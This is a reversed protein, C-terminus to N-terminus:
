TIFRVFCRNLDHNTANTSKFWDHTEAFMDYNVYFGEQEVFRLFLIEKYHILVGDVDWGIILKQM